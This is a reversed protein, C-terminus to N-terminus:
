YKSKRTKKNNINKRKKNQTKNKIKRKPAANKDFFYIKNKGFKVRKRENRLERGLM